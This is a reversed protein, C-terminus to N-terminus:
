IVNNKPIYRYSKCSKFKRLMMLCIGADCDLPLKCVFKCGTNSVRSFWMYQYSSYRHKYLKKLLM